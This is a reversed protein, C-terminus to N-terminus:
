LEVWLASNWDVAQPYYTPTGESLPTEVRVKRYDYGVDLTVNSLFPWGSTRTGIDEIQLSGVNVKKLEDLTEKVLADLGKPVAQLRRSCLWKAALTSSWRNVSGNEGANLQLDVDEYRSSCYLKVQSTGYQCAKVLRQAFALNVGNDFAEALQPLAASLPSVALTLAGRQATATLTVETVAMLGASAFELVTGALLPQLLPVINLILDGANGAQAVQIKQGSAQHSDDQFLQGGITGVLDYVDNPKCYLNLQLGM